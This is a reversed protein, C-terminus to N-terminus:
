RQLALHYMPAWGALQQWLRVLADRSLADVARVAEDVILDQLYNGDPSFLLQLMDRTAADIGSNTQSSTAAETIAAIDESDM